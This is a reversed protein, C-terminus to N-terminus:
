TVDTRCSKRKVPLLSDLSIQSGRIKQPEKVNCIYITMHDGLGTM